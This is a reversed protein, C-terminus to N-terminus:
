DKLFFIRRVESREQDSGQLTTQPKKVEDDQKTQISLIKKIQAQPSSAAKWLGLSKNLLEYIYLYHYQHLIMTGHKM